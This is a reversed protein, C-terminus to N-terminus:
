TENKSQYVNGVDERLEELENQQKLVTQEMNRWFKQLKNHEMSLFDKKTKFKCYNADTKMLTAQLSDRKIKSNGLDKNHKEM